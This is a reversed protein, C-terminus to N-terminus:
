AGRAASPIILMVIMWPIGALMMLYSLVLHPAIFGDDM